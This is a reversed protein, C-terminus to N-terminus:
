CRQGQWLRRFNKVPTDRVVKTLWIKLVLFLILIFEPISDPHHPRILSYDLKQMLEQENCTRRKSLKVKIRMSLKVACHDSNVLPAQSWCRRVRKVDKRMMFIHDNQYGKRSRPHRWTAYGGAKNTPFHTSIAYLARQALWSRLYEGAKNVHIEGYPGCVSQDVREEEVGIAANTDMTLLHIDEKLGQDFLIGLGDYFDDREDNSCGQQVAYGHSFSMWATRGDTDSLPLRINIGRAGYTSMIRGGKDWLRYMRKAMMIAVGHKGQSTNNEETLGCFIVHVGSDPDLLVGKGSGWWESIGMLVYNREKFM